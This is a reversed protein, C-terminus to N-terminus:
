QIDDIQGMDFPVDFNFLIRYWCSSYLIWNSNTRICSEDNNYGGYIKRMCDLLTEEHYVRTGKFNLGFIRYAKEKKSFRLTHLSRIENSIDSPLKSLIDKANEYAIVTNNHVTIGNEDNGASTTDESKLPYINNDGIKWGRMYLGMEMSTKFFEDIMNKIEPTARSIKLKLDRVKFDILKKGKDLDDLLFIMNKFISSNNKLSMKRCYNRLKKVVRDDLPSKDETQDVFMKESEFYDFLEDMNTYYLKNQKPIGVCILKDIQVDNIPEHGIVTYTDNCDPHIGFYFNTINRTSKLLSILESNSVGILNDFGEETTFNILQEKTYVYSALNESWMDDIMYFSPNLSFKKAFRSCYPIYKKRKLNEIEGLPYSSETIDVRYVNVAIIIAEYNTTPKIKSLLKNKDLFAQSTVDLATSNFVFMSDKPTSIKIETENEVIDGQNVINYYIKLIDSHSMSNITHLLSNKISNTRNENIKKIFFCIESFETYRNMRYKNIKAIVYAIIENIIYPNENTKDGFVLNTKNLAPIEDNNIDYQCIHDYGYLISEVDWEISSQNPSIFKSIKSLDNDSSQYSPSEITSYNYLRCSDIVSQYYEDCSLYSVNFSKKCIKSIYELIFFPTDLDITGILNLPNLLVKESM